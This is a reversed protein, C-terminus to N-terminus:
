FGIGGIIAGMVAFKVIDHLGHIRTLTASVRSFVDHTVASTMAIGFGVVAGFLAGEALEDTGTAYMLAALVVATIFSAVASHMMARMAADKDNLQKQTLGLEKAWTKGFVGMSYWISGVIFTSITALVVAIYNIDGLTDGWEM